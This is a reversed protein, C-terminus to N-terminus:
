RYLPNVIHAPADKSNRRVKRSKSIWMDKPSLTDARGRAKRVLLVAFVVAIVIILVMVVPM